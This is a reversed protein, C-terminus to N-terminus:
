RPSFSLIASHDVASLAAADAAADLKSKAMNALTYDVSAGVSFILPIAAIGAFLAISGSDNRGFARVNAISALARQLFMM